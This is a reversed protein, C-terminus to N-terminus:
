GYFEVRIPHINRELIAPSLIMKADATKVKKITTSERDIKYFITQGNNKITMDTSPVISQGMTIMVM